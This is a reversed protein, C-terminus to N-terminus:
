TNTTEIGVVSVNKQGFVRKTLFEVLRVQFRDKYEETNESDYVIRTAIDAFLLPYIVGVENLTEVIEAPSMVDTLRGVDDKSVPVM